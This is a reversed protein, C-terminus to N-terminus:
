IESVGRCDLELAGARQLDVRYKTKDLKMIGIIEDNFNVTTGEPPAQLAARVADLNSVHHFTLFAREACQHNWHGYLDVVLTVDGDSFRVSKLSGDHYEHQLRIQKMPPVAIQTLPIM